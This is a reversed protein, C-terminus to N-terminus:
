FLSKIRVFEIKESQLPPAQISLVWFSIKINRLLKTLYSFMELTETIMDVYFKLNMCGM